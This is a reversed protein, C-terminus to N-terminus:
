NFHISYTENRCVTNLEKKQSKLREFSVRVSLPTERVDRFHLQVECGLDVGFVFIANFKKIINFNKGFSPRFARM